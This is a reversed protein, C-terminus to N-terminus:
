RDNPFRRRWVALKEEGNPRPPVVAGVAAARLQQQCFTILQAGGRASAFLRFHTSDGRQFATIRAARIGPGAVVTGPLAATAWTTDAVAKSVTDNLGAAIFAREFRQVVTDVTLPSRYVSWWCYDEDGDRDTSAVTRSPVAHHCAGLVLLVIFAPSLRNFRM